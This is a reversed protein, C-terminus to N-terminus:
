SQPERAPGRRRPERRRRESRPPRPLRTASVVLEEVLVAAGNFGLFPREFFCHAHFSPFGLEVFFWNPLVADGLSSSFFVGNPERPPPPEFANLEGQRPYVLTRTSAPLRALCEQAHGPRNTLVVFSLDADLSTVLDALGAGLHPDGLFGVRLGAINQAVARELRPVLRALEADVLREAEADRGTARGIARVWEATARLGVPLPTEVLHAGALAAVHRAAKRGYPLGIVTRAETARALSAHPSGDLWVSTVTLGLGEVLRRLERVNANQDEENRDYLHGVIAVTGDAAPAAPAQLGKALALLAEEYGDLWDGDMAKSAVLRVPVGRAAEVDRGLREVDMGTLLAMPMSTVLVVGVGPQAAAEDFAQRVDDERSLALKDPAMRTTRIRRPLGLVDLTSRFDHGGGIWPIKGEACRPGDVVVHADPIANAALYVGSMFPFLVRRSRDTAPRSSAGPGTM